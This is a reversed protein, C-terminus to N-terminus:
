SLEGDWNIRILPTRVRDSFYAFNLTTHCCLFREHCFQYRNNAYKSKDKFATIVLKFGNSETGWGDTVYKLTVFNTRTYIAGVTQKTNRCSLDSQLLICMENLNTRRVTDM